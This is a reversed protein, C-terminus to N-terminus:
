YWDIKGSAVAPHYYKLFGWIKGLLFLNDIQQPLLTQSQATTQATTQAAASLSIGIFVSLFTKRM